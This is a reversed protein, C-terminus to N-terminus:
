YIKQTTRIQQYLQSAGDYRIEWHWPSSALVLGLPTIMELKQAEFMGNLLTKNDVDELMALTMLILNTHKLHVRRIM